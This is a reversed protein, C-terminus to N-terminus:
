ILFFIETTISQNIILTLCEYVEHAICKITSSSINDHGCSHSNTIKSLSQMTTANDILKFKFTSETANILYHTYPTSIDPIINNACITAFYNNFKDVIKPKSTCSHNDISMADPTTRHAKRNLANDVTRWTETGNGEHKEFQTHFYM